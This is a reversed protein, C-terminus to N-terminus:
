DILRQEGQAQSGTGLTRVGALDNDLNEHRPLAQIEELELGAQIGWASVTHRFTHRPSRFETAIATGILSARRDQEAVIVIEAKSRGARIYTTARFDALAFRKRMERDRQNALTGSFRIM